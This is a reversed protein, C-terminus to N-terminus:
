KTGWICVLQFYFLYTLFIFTHLMDNYIKPQPNTDGKRFNQRLVQVNSQCGRNRHVTQWIFYSVVTANVLFRKWSSEHETESGDGVYLVGASTVSKVREQM